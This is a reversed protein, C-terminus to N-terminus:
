ESLIRDRREAKFIRAPRVQGLYGLGHCRDLRRHDMLLLLESPLHARHQRVQAQLCHHLARRDFCCGFGLLVREDMWEQIGLTIGRRNTELPNDAFRFNRPVEARGRVLRARSIRLAPSPLVAM